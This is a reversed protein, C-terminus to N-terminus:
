GATTPYSEPSGVGGAFGDKTDIRTTGAREFPAEPGSVDQVDRRPVVGAVEAGDDGQLGLRTAGPGVTM